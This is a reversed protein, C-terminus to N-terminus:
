GAAEGTGSGHLARLLASWAVASRFWWLRTRLRGDSATRRERRRWESPASKHAVERPLEMEPASWRGHGGRGAAMLRAPPRPQSSGGGRWTEQQLAGRPRAETAQFAVGAKARARRVESLMKRAVMRLVPRYDEFFGVAAREVAAVRGELRAVKTYTQGQEWAAFVVVSSEKVFEELSRVLVCLTAMAEQWAEDGRLAAM